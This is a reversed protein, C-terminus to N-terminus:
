LDGTGREWGPSVGGFLNWAATLLPETECFRSGILYQIAADPLRAVPVEAASWDVADPAGHDRVIANSRFNVLGAPAVVRTCINGFSDVYHHVPELFQFAADRDRCSGSAAGSSRVADTGDADPNAAAPSTSALEFTWPYSKGQITPPGGEGVKVAPPLYCTLAGNTGSVQQLPRQVSIKSRTDFRSWIPTPANSRCLALHGKM